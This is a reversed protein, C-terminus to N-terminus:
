ADSCEKDKPLRFSATKCLRRLRLALEDIEDDFLSCTKFTIKGVDFYSVEVVLEGRANTIKTGDANVKM